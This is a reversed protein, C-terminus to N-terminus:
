TSTPSPRLRNGSFPRFFGKMVQLALIINDRVSLDAIIGDGKRDEPLYGIGLKMAHIPAGIRVKKGNMRIDGGTVKDAAYIARVSESRGSGLLGTFGNM